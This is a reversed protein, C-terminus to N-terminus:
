FPGRFSMDPVDSPTHSQTRYKKIIKDGTRKPVGTMEMITEAIDLATPYYNTALASSTPAPADPLTLRRPAQRLVVGGTTVQAIIESAIGFSKWSSDVVLLKGTKKVSSVITADDLPKITRLDILEVDVHAEATLEIARLAEITMHSSAVLTIDGGKKRVLSKGIPETYYGDPVHGTIAHLWRHEIFIVPNNDAIASLMLGKADNPFAPAVVKMGPIHAFLAMLNQSHQPGQGWGRGIIVRIVLPVSQQGGYTYHWFAANNIIQDMSLLAFDIRMHTLIPRMGSLAAGICVGTMANESLPMDLVRDKGHKQQLGTTTGFAGKEDPIGEGILFVNPDRRLAIDFSERIAVAYTLERIKTPM